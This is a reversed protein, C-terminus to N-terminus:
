RHQQKKPTVPVIGIAQGLWLARKNRKEEKMGRLVLKPLFMFDGKRPFIMGNGHHRYLCMQTSKDVDLFRSSMAM